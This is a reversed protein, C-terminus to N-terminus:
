DANGSRDSFITLTLEAQLSESNAENRSMRLDRIWLTQPLQELRRVFDFVQAFQGDFAIVVPHQSILQHDIAPQPDLRKVQVGAAKAEQALQAYFGVLQTPRPAAAVWETSYERTSALRIEAQRIPGGLRQSQLVHQQKEELQSRLESITRQGPVFVLLVYGVSAAALIATVMWSKVPRGAITLYHSKPKM